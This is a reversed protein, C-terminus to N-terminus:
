VEDSSSGQGYAFEDLTGDLVVRLKGENDLEGTQYKFSKSL